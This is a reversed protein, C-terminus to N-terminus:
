TLDLVEVVVGRSLAKDLMAWFEDYSLSYERDSIKVKVM